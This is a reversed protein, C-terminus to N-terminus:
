IAVANCSIIHKRNLEGGTRWIEIWFTTKAQNKKNNKEEEKEKKNVKANRKPLHKYKKGENTTKGVAAAVTARHIGITRLGGGAKEM